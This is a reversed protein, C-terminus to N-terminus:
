LLAKVEELTLETIRYDILSEDTILTNEAMLQALDYTMRSPFALDEKGNEHIFVIQYFPLNSKM